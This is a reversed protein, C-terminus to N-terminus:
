HYTRMAPRPVPPDCRLLGLLWDLGDLNDRLRLEADDQTHGLIGIPGDYGSDLIAYMMDLDAEGAGLPLIKEAGPDDRRVMGNLNVCYLHPLMVEFLTDLRDLHAHGHHFNYIIGVNDMALQEIIAVQHEPEGFWGGHNYLGVRCGLREAEEVLPRLQDVAADVRQPDDDGPPDPILVWLDTTVERQELTDLVRRTNDDMGTYHLWVGDLRVEADRLLHIEEDLGPLHEVRWDYAFGGVGLEDLM